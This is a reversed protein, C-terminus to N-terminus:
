PGIGFGSAQGYSEWNAFYYFDVTLILDIIESGAASQLIISLMGLIYAFTVKVYDIYSIMDVTAPVNILGNICPM